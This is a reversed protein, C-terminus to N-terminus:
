SKNANAELEAIRQKLRMNEIKEDIVSENPAVDTSVKNLSANYAATEDEEEKLDKNYVRGWRHKISPEIPSDKALFKKGVLKLAKEYYPLFEPKQIFAKWEKYTFMKEVTYWDSLNYVDNLHLTVWNVMEQGLLIMEEESFSTTRPRGATM